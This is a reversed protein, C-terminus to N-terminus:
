RDHNEYMYTRHLLIVAGGPKAVQGAVRLSRAHRLLGRGNLM